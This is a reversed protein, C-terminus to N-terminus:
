EGTATAGASAVDDGEGRVEVAGGSDEVETGKLGETFSGAGAIEDGAKSLEEFASDGAVIASFDAASVSQLDDSSVSQVGETGVPSEATGSFTGDGPWGLCTLVFVVSPGHSLLRSSSFSSPM